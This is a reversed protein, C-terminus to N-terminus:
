TGMSDSPYFRPKYFHLPVAFVLHRNSLTEPNRHYTDITSVQCLDSPTVFVHTFQSWERELATLQRLIRQSRKTECVIKRRPCLTLKHSSLHFRSKKCLSICFIIIFFRCNLVTWSTIQFKFPHGSQARNQKKKTKQINERHVIHSIHTNKLDQSERNEIKQLRKRNSLRYLCKM